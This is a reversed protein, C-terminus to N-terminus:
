ANFRDLVDRVVDRFDTFRRYGMKQLRAPTLQSNPPRPAVQPVAAMTPRLHDIPAGLAEAVERTLQYRTAGRPGSMHVVGDVERALCWAFVDGVDEIWTPFRIAANDVDAPTQRRVSAVMRGIIGSSALDIAAGVLLPFRLVMGRERGLVLEEAAVKTRGYVSIPSTPSSEEYPPHLGDFVYDSSAYLVPIDPPTVECLTRTAGVNLSEAEAPNEECYDPDRYAALHIVADPNVARILRSLADPNRIDCVTLGPAAQRFAAPAVARDRGVRRAVARGLFGSAGTILCRQRTM